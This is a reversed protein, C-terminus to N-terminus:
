GSAEDPGALAGAPMARVVDEDCSMALQEGPQLVLFDRGDWAGDILRKVLVPSGEMPAFTWDRAAAEARALEQTRSADGIGLDIFAARDYRGRWACEAQLITRLNPPDDHPGRRNLRVDVVYPSRAASVYVPRSLVESTLTVIQM